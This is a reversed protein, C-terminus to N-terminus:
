TCSTAWDSRKRSKSVARATAKRHPMFVMTLPTRATSSRAPIAGSRVNRFKQHHAGHEGGQQEGRTAGIQPQDDAHGIRRQLLVDLQPGIVHHALEQVLPEGDDVVHLLRVVCLDLQRHRDVGRRVRGVDREGDLVLALDDVHDLVHLALQPLAIQRDPLQHAAEVM